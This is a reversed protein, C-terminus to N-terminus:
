LASAIDTQAFDNGIYLLPCGYREALEYAFCDGYNLGAPHMGKGWRQYIGGISRAAGATVPDIDLPLRDLLEQVLPRYGRRTAVILAEAVTGASIIAEADAEIADLCASGFPEQLAIAILASTDV